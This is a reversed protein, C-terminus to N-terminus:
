QNNSSGTTVYSGFGTYFHCMKEDNKLYEQEPYAKTYRTRLESLEEIQEKYDDELALLNSAALDTQTGSCKM